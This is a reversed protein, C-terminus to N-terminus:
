RHHSRAPRSGLLCHSIPTPTLQLAGAQTPCLSSSCLFIDPPLGHCDGPAITRPPLYLTLYAISAMSSANVSCRSQDKRRNWAPDLARPSYLRLPWPEFLPRCSANRRQRGNIVDCGLRNSVKFDDAPLGIVGLPVHWRLLEDSIAAPNNLDCFLMSRLCGVASLPM